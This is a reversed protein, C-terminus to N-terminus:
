NRRPHTLIHYFLVKNRERVFIKLAVKEKKPPSRERRETIYNPSIKPASRRPPVISIQKERPERRRILANATGAANNKTTDAIGARECSALGSALSAFAPFNPSNSNRAFQANQWTSPARPPPRPGSRVRACFFCPFESASRKRVILSPTGPVAIGGFPAVCCPTPMVAASIQCTIEYMRLTCTFVGTWGGPFATRPLSNNVPEAAHAVHWM